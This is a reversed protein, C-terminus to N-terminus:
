NEDPLNAVDEIAVKVKEKLVKNKGSRLGYLKGSFSTVISLLDDTLEEYITRENPKDDIVQINVNHSKFYVELYNFGFRTLRDKYRIALTSIEGNRARKMIKILGKRKDNLGSGVDTIIEINNYTRLDLKEKIYNVQRDLDGKRKQELSAVRAYIVLNREPSLMNSEGLLREIESRPFRRRNTPTRVVKIKGSRDWRQLTLVSVGLIKAAEKPTYLEKIM